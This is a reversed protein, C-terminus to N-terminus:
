SRGEKDIDGRLNPKTRCLLELHEPPNHLTRETLARIGGQGDLVNCSYGYEKLYAVADPLITGSQSWSLQEYEFIIAPRYTEIVVQMGQLIQFEYGQVDLKVLDLRTIQHGIISDLTRLPVEIEDYECGPDVLSALGLNSPCGPHGKPVKLLAKSNNLGLAVAYSEILFGNLGSNKAILEALAPNPEFSLVRGSQGALRAMSLSHCGINAGIDIAVGGTPLLLEIWKAVHPEYAGLFLINWDIWNRSDLHM